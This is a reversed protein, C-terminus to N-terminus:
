RSISPDIKHSDLAAQFAAADAEGLSEKFDIVAQRLSGKHFATGKLEGKLMLWAQSEALVELVHSTLRVGHFRLYEVFIKLRCCLAARWEHTRM